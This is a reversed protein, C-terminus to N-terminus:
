EARTSDTGSMSAVRPPLTARFSQWRRLADGYSGVGTAYFAVTQFAPTIKPRSLRLEGMRRWGAPLVPVWEDYLM